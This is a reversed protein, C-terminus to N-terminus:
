SRRFRRAPDTQSSAKEDARDIDEVKWSRNCAGCYFATMARGGQLVYERRIFGVKLCHPCVTRDPM